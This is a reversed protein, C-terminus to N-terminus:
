FVFGDQLLNIKEYEQSYFNVGLKDRSRKLFLGM